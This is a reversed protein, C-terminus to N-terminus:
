KSQLVDRLTQLLQAPSFPKQLTARVNSNAHREPMTNAEMLGSTSIMRVNPNMRAIQQILQAGTIGPMDIDTVVLSIEDRHERYVEIAETGDAAVLVRYGYNELITRGLDRIAAEDDVVLITSKEVAKVM